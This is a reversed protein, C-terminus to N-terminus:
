RLTSASQTRIEPTSSSKLEEKNDNEILGNEFDDLTHVRDDWKNEQRKSFEFNEVLESQAM